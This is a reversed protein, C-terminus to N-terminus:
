AETTENNEEAAPAEEAPAEEATAEVAVEEAPAEVVEEAAALVEEEVVVEAAALPKRPKEEESSVSASYDIYQDIWKQLYLQMDERSKYSGVKDRVMCKLYHAFRCTALSVGHVSACTDWRRM